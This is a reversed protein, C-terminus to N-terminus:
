PHRLQRGRHHEEEDMRGPVQPHLRGNGERQAACDVEVGAVRIGNDSLLDPLLTAVRTEWAAIHALTDQVTWGPLVEGSAWGTASLGDVSALLEQRTHALRELWEQKTTM